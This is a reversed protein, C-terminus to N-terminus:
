GEGALVRRAMRPDDHHLCDLAALITRRLKEIEAIAEPLTEPLKDM